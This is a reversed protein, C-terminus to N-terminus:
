NICLPPPSRKAHRSVQNYLTLRYRAAFFFSVVRSRPALFGVPFRADTQFTLRAAKIGLYSAFNSNGKSFYSDALRHSNRRCLRGENLGSAESILFKRFPFLLSESSDLIQFFKTAERYTIGVNGRISIYPLHSFLDRKVSATSYDYNISMLIM